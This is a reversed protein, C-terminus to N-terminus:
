AAPLIAKQALPSSLILSTSTAGCRMLEVIIKELESVNPAVVKVIGDHDGTVSHCEIIGPVQSAVVELPTVYGRSTVRIFATIGHGLAAPDIRAAYGTIVGAQELREVRASIDTKPLKLKRGIEAHTARGDEQLIALIATDTANLKISM